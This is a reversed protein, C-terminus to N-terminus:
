AASVEAGGMGDETEGTANADFGGALQRLLEISADNDGDWARVALSKIQNETGPARTTPLGFYSSTLVQDASRGYVRETSNVITAAGTEPDREAILINAPEVSGAVIPSHTTFFFQIKPFTTALSEVVTRQWAPHLLLDLEDVIVVGRLDRFDEHSPLVSNMQYLLDGFWSIFARYGDSLAALSLRTGSSEFIEDAEFTTYEPALPQSEGISAKVGQPLVMNLLDLGLRLRGYANLTRLWVAVPTLVFYEEFLGAVRVYRSARTPRGLYVPSAFGDARRMASYAALFFQQSTDSFLEPWPRIEPFRHGALFSALESVSWGDTVHISEADEHKLVAVAADFPLIAAAGTRGSYSTPQDQAHLIARLAVYAFPTSHRQFRNNSDSRRVLGSRVLEAPRYELSTQLIPALVGIIIAQLVASKGAGNDGLLVNVNPLRPAKYPGHRRGPYQFKMDAKEFCRFDTVSLSEIYM